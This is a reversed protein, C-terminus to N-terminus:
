FPKPNAQFGAIVQDFQNLIQFVSASTSVPASILFCEGGGCVCVCAHLCMCMCVLKCVNQWSYKISFPCLIYGTEQDELLTGQPLRPHEGDWSGGSDVPKQM